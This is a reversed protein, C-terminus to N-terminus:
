RVQVEAIAAGLKYFTNASIRIRDCKPAALTVDTWRPDPGTAEPFTVDASKVLAGELFCEVRADKTGRDMTAPNGPHLHLARVARPKSFTLDLWGPQRDPAGWFTTPDGDIASDAGYAPGVQGSALATKFLPVHFFWTLFAIGAVVSALTVVRRKRRVQAIAKPTSLGLGATQEIAALADILERFAAENGAGADAELDPVPVDALRTQAAAALARARPVWSPPAEGPFADLAAGISSLAVRALKTAEVM